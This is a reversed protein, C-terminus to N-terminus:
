HGQATLSVGGAAPVPAYRSSGGSGGLAETASGPMVCTRAPIITGTAMAHGICRQAARIANQLEDLGKRMVTDGRQFDSFSAPEAPMPHYTLSPDGECMGEANCLCAQNPWCRPMACKSVPPSAPIRAFPYDQLMCLGFSPPELAEFWTRTPCGQPAWPWTWPRVAHLSFGKRKISRTILPKAPALKSLTGRKLAVLEAVSCSWTKLAGARYALDAANIPIAEAEM